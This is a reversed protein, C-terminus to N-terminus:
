KIDELEKSIYKKMKAITDKTKEFFHRSQERIHPEVNASNFWNELKAVDEELLIGMKKVDRIAIIQYASSKNQRANYIIVIISAGSVVALIVFLLIEFWGIDIFGVSLIIKGKIKFTEPETPFSIAGRDDRANVQLTYKGFSLLEEIIVDWNGLEDSLTSGTVLEQGKKNKISIDIFTNPITKGSAFLFEGQSVSHTVFDIVPMSLPIIEFELSDEISNGAMDKIRVLLQHKGPMQLPLAITTSTSTVSSYGDIFIEAGAIGSLADQTEFTIKPTPNDSAVNDIEIGFPLPTNIDISIKYYALEGWGINNEFQARIYWIGEELTGFNQGNFLEEQKDGPKTDRSQSLRTAVQIIDLPLEWLAIVEGTHSYWRSEDPYLPVKIEPKAPLGEAMVATRIIRVPQKIPEVIIEEVIGAKEPTVVRTSININVGETESLVNTGKGDSATVVANSISIDASGAGVAKFKLKLIQLMEGSVGNATGGIFKLTGDENSIIPEEVWFNFVSGSRDADVLELINSPFEVTAQSANISTGESDIRLNVEFEQNIGFNVGSPYLKINAAEASNTVAFFIIFIFSTLIKKYM